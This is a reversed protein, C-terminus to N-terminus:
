IVASNNSSVTAAFVAADLKYTDKSAATKGKTTSYFTQIQINEVASLYQSFTIEGGEQGTERMDEGFLEKLKLEMKVRGYRAYLMHMTGDM